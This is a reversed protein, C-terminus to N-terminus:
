GKIHFSAGPDSHQRVTSLKGEGPPLYEDQGDDDCGRTTKRTATATTMTATTIAGEGRLYKVVGGGPTRSTPMRAKGRSLSFGHTTVGQRDSRGGCGMSMLEKLGGPNSDVFIRDHTSSGVMSSQGSHHRHSLRRRRGSPKSGPPCHHFLLIETMTTNRDYCYKKPSLFIEPM